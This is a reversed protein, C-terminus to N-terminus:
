WRRRRGGDFVVEREVVREDVEVGFLRDRERERERKRDKMADKASERERETATQREGHQSHATYVRRLREFFEEHHRTPIGFRNALAAAKPHDVDCITELTVGKAQSLLPLHVVQAIAGTGLLAIKFNKGEIM